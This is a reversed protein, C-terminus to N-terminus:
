SRGQGGGMGRGGGTTRCRGMGRGSGGKQRCGGGLGGGGQGMGSGPTLAGAPMAAPTQVTTKGSVDTGDAYRRVADGVTGTVGTIIQIGAADFVNAAKPGLNGTLVVAVGKDAMLQASSIGAGSTSSVNQNPVAEHAMTAPDIIIFYDCRGFRADIRDNLSPGTSSIAIKMKNERENSGAPLIL